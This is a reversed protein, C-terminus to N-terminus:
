KSFDETEDLKKNKGKKADKQRYRLCWATVAAGATFTIVGVLVYGGAGAQMWVSGSLIRVGALQGTYAIGRSLGDLCLLVAACLASWGYIQRTLRRRRRITRARVLLLRTREQSTKM